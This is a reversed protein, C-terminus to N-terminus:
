VIQRGFRTLFDSVRYVTMGLLQIVASVGLLCLVIVGYVLKDTFFSTLFAYFGTLLAVWFLNLVLYGVLVKNRLPRLGKTREETSLGTNVRVGISESVLTQWFMTEDESINQLDM